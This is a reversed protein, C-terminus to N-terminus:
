YPRTPESIHILSLYELTGHPALRAVHTSGHAGPGLPWTVLDDSVIRALTGTAFRFAVDDYRILLVVCVRSLLFNEPCPKWGTDGAHMSEHMCPCGRGTPLGHCVPLMRDKGLIVPASCAEFIHLVRARHKM